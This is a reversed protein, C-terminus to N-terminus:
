DDATLASALALAAAPADTDPAILALVPVNVGADVYEQLRRRCEAPTGHVCMADIVEDPVLAAAASRDGADSAAWSAALQDGRGRWEHFARYVGVHTYTAAIPKVLRSVIERDDTPCVMIRDVIDAGANHERVIPAMARVDEPSVWNLMAGDAEAGALRLMRERLAAVVIKPPQELRRGLRYGDIEFTDFRRSIREGSFALRLFRVVDATHAFPREFGIGNHRRVIVDSSSGVGLTFRGPALEAMTAATSALVAPGRTFSSVVGTAIRLRPEWVVIAALPTLGDVPGAEASWVDTYGADALQNSLSKHEALSVGAFPLTIGWRQEPVATV